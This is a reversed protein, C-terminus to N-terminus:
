ISIELTEKLLRSKDIPIVGLEECVIGGALNSIAAVEYHSLGSALCLAAVSVLTDGAGSVDAIRRLHAPILHRDRGGESNKTSVFVGAESLTILVMSIDQRDHLMDAASELDAQNGADMEMNLGERIEKLNPKFLTIHQYESFNKKKPDVIVPIKLDISKEIIHRIVGPTLVGKNYDQFIIAQIRHTEFAQDIKRLLLAQDEACLDHSVEEDVRLMQSKNGIVRFKTTTIRSPSECITEVPLQEKKILELFDKGKMDQGIVTCLIPIAGMSKINLAVNAAGGMRNMRKEVQVIPVPAEPSIREVKGFLYSDIMVDGIVMIKMDLFSDFIKNYDRSIM